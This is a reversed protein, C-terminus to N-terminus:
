PIRLTTSIESYPGTGATMHVNLILIDGASGIPDSAVVDASVDGPSLVGAAPDLAPASDATGIVVDTEGIRRRLLEVHLVADLTTQYGIVSIHYTGAPSPANLPYAVEFGSGAAM